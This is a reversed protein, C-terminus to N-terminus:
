STRGNRQSSTSLIRDPIGAHTRQSGDEPTSSRIQPKEDAQGIIKTGHAAMVNVTKGIIVVHSASAILHQPM